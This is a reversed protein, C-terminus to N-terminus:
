DGVTQAGRGHLVGLVLRVHKGGLEDRQRPDLLNDVCVHSCADLVVRLILTGVMVTLLHCVVVVRVVHKRIGGILGSLNVLLGLGEHLVAAQHRSHLDRLWVCM